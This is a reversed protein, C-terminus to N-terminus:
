SSIVSRTSSASCSPGPTSSGLRLATALRLRLAAACRRLSDPHTLARHRVFGVRTAGRKSRKMSRSRDSTEGRVKARVMDVDVVEEAGVDSRRASICSPPTPGSLAALKAAARSFILSAAFPPFSPRLGSRTTSGTLRRRARDPNPCFQRARRAGGEMGRKGEALGEGGHRRVVSTVRGQIVSRVDSCQGRATRRDGVSPRRRGRTRNAEAEDLAAGDSRVSM